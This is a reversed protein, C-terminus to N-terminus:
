TGHRDPPRTHHASRLEGPTSRGLDGPETTTPGAPRADQETANATYWTPANAGGYHWLRNRHVVKPKATPNLQIRYVLDNIRNIIVYPGQWPRQLKPTLGKRRQPNYLWTADGAELLPCSLSLDYRRKMQDSRIQLHAQAFEHVTELQEQLTEAYETAAQRTEEETTTRIRFIVRIFNIHSLIYRSAEVCCQVELKYDVAVDNGNCVVVKSHLVDFTCRHERRPYRLLRNCFLAANKESAIPRRTSRYGITWLTM